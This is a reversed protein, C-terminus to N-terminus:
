QALLAPDGIVASTMTLAGDLSDNFITVEDGPLRVGAVYLLPLYHEASNVALAAARDDPAFQTLAADAGDRLAANIRARFEEAWDPRTGALQRWHALNHVINGSGIVLVGEERLPALKRGLALHAEASLSRDLSMAVTPVDADPYLMRMVGYVGHDFGHGGDRAIREEGLLQAAREILEPSTPAPYTIRYLEAPFGGFDHITSPHPATTLHTRGRTEWHATIVLAARPRPLTRGLAAIARREPNDTVMSMPSGHGLFLAPLRQTM